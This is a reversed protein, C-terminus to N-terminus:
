RLEGRRLMRLILPWGFVLPHRRQRATPRVPTVGNRELKWLVYPVWDGFTFATKVLNAIALAKGVRRRVFWSVGARTRGAPSVRFRAFAGDEELTVRGRSALDRLAFSAVADFREHASAYLRPIVDPPESRIEARYTERFVHEWVFTMPVRAGSAAAPHLPLLRGLTTLVARTAAQQVLARLYEDHAELLRFPQCFRCSMLLVPWHPGTARLFDRASVVAYKARLRTGDLNLELGFVNPALARNSAALLAASLHGRSKGDPRLSRAYAAHYGNVLVYFDHVGTTTVGARLCSGYYLVGAVASGHRRAIEHALARAERTVPRDIEEAVLSAIAARPDEASV